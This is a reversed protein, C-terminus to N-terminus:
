TKRKKRISQKVAHEEIWKEFLDARFLLIKGVKRICLYLGNGNRYYILNRLQNMTFPYRGCEIIQKTGIYEYSEM